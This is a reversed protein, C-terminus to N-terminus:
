WVQVRLEPALYLKHGPRVDFADYWADLNRVTAVRYRDPAHADTALQRRLAADTQTTRWSQAFGLFFERDLTRVVARDRAAEGLSLRYADFAAVLGGLDAVNETSTLAGDVAADPFPHYSSYQMVLPQALDHFRASDDASWWRRMRGTTDYEAGLVDVFHTIDHGIIAGIAGYAAADSGYPDFKPPQLLAASFDYSNQQFVLIAGPQHPAILWETVDFPRRLRALAERYSREAVLELNGAPDTSSFSPAALRPWRDPYGVGIYLARVKSVAQARAEVSMWSATAVRREFAAKVNAVIREIRAKQEAPLYRRAYLESLEESLATMTTQDAREARSSKVDHMELAADVFARPL